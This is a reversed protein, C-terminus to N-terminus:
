RSERWDRVKQIHERLRYIEDALLILRIENGSHGFGQGDRINEVWALAKEVDPSACASNSHSVRVESYGPPLERLPVRYRLGAGGRAV